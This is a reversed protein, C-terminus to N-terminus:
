DRGRDSRGWITNFSSLCDEYSINTIWQYSTDAWPSSYCFLTLATPFHFIKRNKQRIHFCFALGWWESSKESSLIEKRSRFILFLIVLPVFRGHGYDYEKKGCVAWMWEVVSLERFNGFIPYICYFYCFTGVLSSLLLLALCNLNSM